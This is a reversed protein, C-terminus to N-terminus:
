IGYEEEVLIARADVSEIRDQMIALYESSSFCAELQAKSPFRILIVRQPRRLDHLSQVKESRLLYQGGYKEVIPKVKEIYLDYTKRDSGIYVDIM